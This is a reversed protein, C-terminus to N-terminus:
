WIGSPIYKENLRGVKDIAKETEIISICESRRIFENLQSTDIASNKEKAVDTFKKSPEGIGYLMRFKSDNVMSREMYMKRTMYITGDEGVLVKGEKAAQEMEEVTPMDDDKDTVIAYDNDASATGVNIDSDVIIGVDTTTDDLTPLNFITGNIKSADVNGYVGSNSDIVADGNTSVNRFINNTILHKEIDKYSQRTITYEEVDKFSQTRIMHVREDKSQTTILPEELGKLSQTSEDQQKKKKLHSPQFCIKGRPCIQFVKQGKRLPGICHKYILTSIDYRDGHVMIRPRTEKKWLLCPELHDKWRHVVQLNKYLNRLHHENLWTITNERKNIYIGPNLM